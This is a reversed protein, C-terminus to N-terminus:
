RWGGQMGVFQMMPVEDRPRATMRRLTLSVQGVTLSDSKTEATIDGVTLFRRNVIDLPIKIASGLSEVLQMVAAAQENPTNGMVLGTFQKAIEFMGRNKNIVQINQSLRWTVSPRHNGQWGRYVLWGPLVHGTWDAIGTLWPDATVDDIRQVIARFAFNYRNRTDKSYISPIEQLQVTYKEDGAEIVGANPYLVAHLVRWVKEYGDAHRACRVQIVIERWGEPPEPSDGGADYVTVCDNPEDPQTDVFLTEATVGEGVAEIYRAINEAFSAM